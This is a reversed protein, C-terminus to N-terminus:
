LQEAQQRIATSSLHNFQTTMFTIDARLGHADELSRIFPRMSHETENGRLGICLKHNKLLTVVGDWTHLSKAVDSGVLFTVDSSTLLEDLEDMVTETTHQLSNLAGVTLRPHEAVAARALSLRAEYSSVEAKARPQREPLLIVQRLDLADLAALAFSVHGEHIPDFAGSYLGIKQRIAM